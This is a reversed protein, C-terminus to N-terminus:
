RCPALTKGRLYSSLGTHLVTPVAQHTQLRKRDTAPWSNEKLVKISNTPDNLMYFQRGSLRYQTPPSMLGQQLWDLRAGISISDLFREVSVCMKDTSRSKQMPPTLIAV